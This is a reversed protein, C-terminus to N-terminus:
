QVELRELIWEISKLALITLVGFLVFSVFGLAILLVIKLAIM